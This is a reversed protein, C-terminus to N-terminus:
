QDIDPNRKVHDNSILKPDESRTRTMPYAIFDCRNKFCKDFHIFDILRDDILILKKIFSDQTVAYKKMQNIIVFTKPKNYDPYLKVQMYDNYGYDADYDEDDNVDYSETYRVALTVIQKLYENDCWFAFLTDSQVTEQKVINYIRTTKNLKKDLKYIDSVFKSWKGHQDKHGFQVFINIDEIYMAVCYEPNFTACCNDLSVYLNCYEEWKFVLLALEHNDLCGELTAVPLVTKAFRKALYKHVEEM